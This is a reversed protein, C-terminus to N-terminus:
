SHILQLLLLLTVIFIRKHYEQHGQLILDLHLILAAVSPQTHHPLVASPAPIM